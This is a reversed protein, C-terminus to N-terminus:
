LFDQSMQLCSVFNRSLFSNPFIYPLYLLYFNLFSYVYFLNSKLFITINNYITGNKGAVIKDAKDVELNFLYCIIMVMFFFIFSYKQGVWCLNHEIMILKEPLKLYHLNSRCKLTITKKIKNKFEDVCLSM